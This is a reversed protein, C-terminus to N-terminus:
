FRGRSEWNLNQNSTTERTARYLAVVSATFVAAAAIIFWPPHGVEIPGPLTEDAFRAFLACLFNNTGHAVMAPILSGSRYAVMGLYIGILAAGPSQLVDFHILGFLVASISVAASPHTYSLLSRMMLGRFFLEEGIGPGVTVIVTLVVFVAISAHRFMKNFMDLGAPDFVKPNSIHLLFVLEDVLFGLGVIGMVAYVIVSAPPLHLRLWRRPSVRWLAPVGWALGAFLSSMIVVQVGLAVPSEFWKLVTEPRVFSMIVRLGISLAFLLITLSAFALLGIWWPIKRGPSSPFEM